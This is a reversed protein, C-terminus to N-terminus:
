SLIYSFQNKVLNVASNEVALLNAHSREMLFGYRSLRKEDTFNMERLFEELDATFVMWDHWLGIKDEILTIRHHTLRKNGFYKSRLGRFELSYKIDKILKRSYHLQEKLKGARILKRIKLLRSIIFKDFETVLTRLRIRKFINLIIFELLFLEDHPYDIWCEKFNQEADIEKLGIWETLESYTDNIENEFRLIIGHDIAMERVKGGAKTTIGIKAKNYYGAVDWGSHFTKLFKKITKIRKASTRFEHISLENDPMYSFILSDNFTNFQNKIFLEARVHL